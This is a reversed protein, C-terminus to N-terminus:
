VRGYRWAHERIRASKLSVFVGRVGFAVALSRYYYWLERIGGIAEKTGSWAEMTDNGDLADVQRITETLLEPPAQEPAGLNLGFGPHGKNKKRKPLIEAQDGSGAAAQALPPFM